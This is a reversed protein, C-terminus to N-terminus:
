LPNCDGNGHVRKLVEGRKWLERGEGCLICAAYIGPEMLNRAPANDIHVKLPRQIEEVKIFQHTM